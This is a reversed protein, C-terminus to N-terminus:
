KMGHLGRKARHQNWTLLAEPCDKVLKILQSTTVGLRQAAPKPEWDYHAIYDMAEALLAPYDRHNPNVTIRGEQSGRSARLRERWLDSCGEAPQGAEGITSDLRALFADFSKAALKPLPPPACRHRVALVIRLRSFAAKRNEGQTRYDGAQASIGTPEHTIQVHTAVKNRNQGGPGGANPGALVKCQALLQEDALCTPHPHVIPM